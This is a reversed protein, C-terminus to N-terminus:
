ANKFFNRNADDALLVDRQSVMYNQKRKELIRDTVKKMRKWKPSRGERRYIGRRQRIREKVAANVWPPDSSNRTTTKMPFYTDLAGNILTQYATAKNNSGEATYVEKWDQRITWDKFAAGAQKDFYRYTYKLTKGPGKGPLNAGVYAIRHDSVKREPGDTELPPLSGAEIISRPFNTFIRDIKRDGRTPGVDSEVIDIYDELAQDIRWQNFDGTVVVYPNVYRQRMELVADTIHDLCAKAQPVM